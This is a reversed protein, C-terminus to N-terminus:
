PSRVIPKKVGVSDNADYVRATARARTNKSLIAVTSSSPNGLWTVPAKLPIDM